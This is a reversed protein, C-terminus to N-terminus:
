VCKRILNGDALNRKFDLGEHWVFEKPGAFLYINSKWKTIESKKIENKQQFSTFFLDGLFSSVLNM